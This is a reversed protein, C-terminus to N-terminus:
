FEVRVGLGVRRETDVQGVLWAGGVIRRGIELEYAEPELAALRGPDFRALLGVSWDPRRNAVVRRAAEVRAAELELEARVTGTDRAHAVIREEVVEEECPPCPACGPAPPPPPPAKRRTVKREVVQAVELHKQEQVQAVALTHEVTSGEEVVKSPGSFRGATYAAALALVAGAAIALTRNM